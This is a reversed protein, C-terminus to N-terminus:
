TPSLAQQWMQNRFFHIVLGIYMALTGAMSLGFIYLPALFFMMLLYFFAFWRFM